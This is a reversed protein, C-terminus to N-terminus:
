RAATFLSTQSGSLARVSALGQQDPLVTVTNGDQLRVTITGDENMTM